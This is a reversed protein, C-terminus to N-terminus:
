LAEKWFDWACYTEGCAAVFIFFDLWGHPGISLLFWQFAALLSMLTAGVIRM